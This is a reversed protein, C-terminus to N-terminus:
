NLPITLVLSRRADRYGYDRYSHYHRHEHKKHRHDDDDDDHDGHHHDDHDEDDWREEHDGWREEHWSEEHWRGPEYYVHAHRYRSHRRDNCIRYDRYRPVNHCGSRTSYSAREPITICSANRLERAIAIPDASVHSTEVRRRNACLM